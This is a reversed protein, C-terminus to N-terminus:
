VEFRMKFYAYNRLQFLYLTYGALVDWEFSLDYLM